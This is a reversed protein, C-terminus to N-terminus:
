LTEFNECKPPYIIGFGIGGLYVFDFSLFFFEAGVDNKKDSAVHCQISYLLALLWSFIRLWNLNNNFKKILWNNM